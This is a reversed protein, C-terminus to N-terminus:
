ELFKQGPHPTTNSAAKAAIYARKFEARTRGSKDLALMAWGGAARVARRTAEDVREKAFHIGAKEIAAVAAGYAEDSGAGDSYGALALIQGPKPPFPTDRRMYALLARQLDIGTIGEVSIAAHWLEVSRENCTVEPWIESLNRVFELTQEPTIM